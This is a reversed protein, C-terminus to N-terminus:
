TCLPSLNSTTISKIWDYSKIICPGGALTDEQYNIGNIYSYIYINWFTHFFLHGVILLIFIHPNVLIIESFSTFDVQTSKGKLM